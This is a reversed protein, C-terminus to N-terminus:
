IAPRENAHQGLLVVSVAAGAFAKLARLASTLPSAPANESTM